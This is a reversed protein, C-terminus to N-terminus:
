ITLVSLNNLNVIDDIEPHLHWAKIHLAMATQINELTDDIFLTEEAILNNKNLVWEFCNKDPKRLHIEHSLYFAEFCNKFRNYRTMSMTNMVKEIHLENTNSLLFLRYKKTKALAEIFELRYEPFDLIIANWADVLQQKTANPFLKQYYSVFELTTIRGKEYANNTNAMEDTVHTLGFRKMARITAPKDLNIFIDGFDFLLNKIM